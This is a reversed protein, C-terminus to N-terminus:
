SAMLDLTGVYQLTPENQSALTVFLTSELWDCLDRVGSYLAFIM